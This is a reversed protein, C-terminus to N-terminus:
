KECWFPTGNMKRCEHTGNGKTWLAFCLHDLYLFAHFGKKKTGQGSTNQGTAVFLFGPFSGKGVTHAIKRDREMHREATQNTTEGTEAPLCCLLSRDM